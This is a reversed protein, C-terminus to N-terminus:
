RSRANKKEKESKKIFESILSKSDNIFRQFEELTPEYGLEFPIPYVDGTDLEFETKSVKVVKFKKNEMDKVVRMFKSVKM